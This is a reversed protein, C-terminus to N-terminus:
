RFRRIKRLQQAVIVCLFCRCERRFFAIDEKPTTSWNTPSAGSYPFLALALRLSGYQQVILGRSDFSLTSLRRAQSAFKQHKEQPLNSTSSRATVGDTRKDGCRRVVTPTGRRRGNNADGYEMALGESVARVLADQLVPATEACRRHIGSTLVIM